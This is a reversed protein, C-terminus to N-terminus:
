KDLGPDLILSYETLCLIIYENNQTAYDLAGHNRPATARWWTQKYNSYLAIEYSIDLAALRLIGPSFEENSVTEPPYLEELRGTLAEVDDDKFCVRFNTM